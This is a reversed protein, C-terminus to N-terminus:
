KLVAGSLGIQNLCTLLYVHDITDFAVLTGKDRKVKKCYTISYCILFSPSASEAETTNLYSGLKWRNSFLNAVLLELTSM